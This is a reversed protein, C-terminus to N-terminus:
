GVLRCLYDLRILECPDQLSKHIDETDVHIIFIQHTKVNFLNELSAKTQVSQLCPALIIEWLIACLTHFM